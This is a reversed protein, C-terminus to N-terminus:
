ALQKVFYAASAPCLSAFQATGSIAAPASARDAPQYGRARFFDAITTTLLHLREAGDQRAFAEAHAVLSGGHGQRKRSPQVVLSRLLRDPGSGELGVFGIPGDDDSLSFFARDQEMLDDTPLHAAELALRLADYDGHPIPSFTIRSLRADGSAQRFRRRCRSSSRDRWITPGSHLSSRLRARGRRLQREFRTRDHHRSERLEDVVHVLLRCHHLPRREGPHAGAADQGHRPHHLDPRLYAVAEGAWIGLGSRIKMSLQFIPLGFMLHALWIGLIGGVLQAAVHVIATRGDIHGRLRMVLTVAPNMHAGSVPALMTILVFLIAGTALTNGLLAVAVNGGALREAMIGSDIVTAFLLLSGLAEALVARQTM